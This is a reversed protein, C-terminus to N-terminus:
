PNFEKFIRFRFIVDYFTYIEDLSAKTNQFITNFEFRWSKDVVYGLGTVARFENARFSYDINYNAFWELQVPIYFLKETRTQDLKIRTGLQYRWRFIFTNSTNSRFFREEFRIYNTLPLSFIVPWNVQIGQFPRFEWITRNDVLSSFLGIGAHLTLINNIQLSGAPRVYFRNLVNDDFIIRYGVDGYVKWQEDFTHSSTFDFWNQITSETNQGYAFSSFALLLFCIKM